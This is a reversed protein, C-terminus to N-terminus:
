SDTQKTRYQIYDGSDIQRLSDVPRNYLYIWCNILQSACTVPVIRRIYEDSESKSPVAQVGEYEDLLRLLDVLSDPFLVYVSGHILTSEDPLYLAGPYSGVDYLQGNIVGEGIYRSHQRLHMAPANSFAARLTGYVFLHTPM